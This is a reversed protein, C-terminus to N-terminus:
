NPMSRRASLMSVRTLLNLISHSSISDITDNNDTEPAYVLVEVDHIFLDHGARFRLNGGEVDTLEFSFNGNSDTIQQSDNGEMQVIAGEIPKHWIDEVTGSVVPTNNCAFLELLLTFM